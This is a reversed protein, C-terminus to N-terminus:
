YSNRWYPKLIFERRLYVNTKDESKIIVEQPPPPPPPPLVATALSAAAIDENVLLMKEVSTPEETSIEQDDVLAVLQVAEPDHVPELDVVPESVTSIDVAPSDANVRVHLPSPPLAELVM